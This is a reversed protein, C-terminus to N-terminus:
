RHKYSPPRPPPIGPRGRTKTSPPIQWTYLRNARPASIAPGPFEKLGSQPCEEGLFGVTERKPDPDRCRLSGPTDLLDGGREGEGETHKLHRLIRDVVAHDIIFAVVKMEGGCSPCVLPDVEYIRKILQAWSRRMVRADPGDDRKRGSSCELVLWDANCCRSPLPHWARLKTRPSCLQLWAGM